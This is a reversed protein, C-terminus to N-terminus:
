ANTEDSVESEEKSPAHSFRLHERYWDIQSKPVILRDAPNSRYPTVIKVDGSGSFAGDSIRKVSADLSVRGLSYCKNCFYKSLKSIGPGVVVKNLSCRTISLLEPDSDRAELVIGPATLNRIDIHNVNSPIRLENKLTIGVFMYDVTSDMYQLPNLQADNYLFQTLEGTLDAKDAKKYIENFNNRMFLEKCGTIFNKLNDTM